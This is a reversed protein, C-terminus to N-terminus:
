GALRRLLEEVVRCAESFSLRQHHRLSRWMLAGTVAMTATRAADGTIEPFARELEARMRTRLETEEPELEPHADEAVLARWRIPAIQEQVRGWVAVWARVREEFAIEASPLEELMPAVQEAGREYMGAVLERATPFHNYVSRPSVGARAAIAEANVEGGSALLDLAADLIKNRNALRRVTRGDLREGSPSTATTM